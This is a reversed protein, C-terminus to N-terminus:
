HLTRTLTTQAVLRLKIRGILEARAAEASRLAATAQQLTSTNSGFLVIGGLVAAIAGVLAVPDLRIAGFVLAALLIAGAIVVLKSMFIFKRCRAITDTLEEIRAELRVIEDRLDGEQEDIATSHQM